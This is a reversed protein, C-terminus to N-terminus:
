RWRGGRYGVGELNAGGGDGAVVARRRPSAGVAADHRGSWRRGGGRRQAPGARTCVPGHQSPTAREARPAVRREMYKDFSFEYHIGNPLLVLM